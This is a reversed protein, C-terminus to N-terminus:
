VAMDFKIIPGSTYNELVVDEFKVDDIDTPNRNWRITPLPYKQLKIMAEVGEIHNRYIHADGINIHLKDAKLGTLQAVIHTLLSYSAINYPIGLVMDGSRQNLLCSLMGDRVYFQFSYHCPPLVMQKLDEPNWATVILRRSHPDKKITNIVEALQDIGQGTYDTKCDIYTAGFHRWQWGYVPGLDYEERDTLGIKDLYARSSNSNWINVGQQRLISADTQGRIFFLLETWINKWSLKRQTMLPLRNNTLDFTMGINFISKTGVNTRDIAVQGYKLIKNLANVYKQEEGGNFWSSCKNGDIVFVEYGDSLYRLALSKYNQDLLRYCAVQQTETGSIFIEHVNSREQDIVIKHPSASPSWWYSSFDETTDEEIRDNTLTLRKWPLTIKVGGANEGTNLTHSTVNSLIRNRQGFLKGLEELQDQRFKQLKTIEEGLAILKQGLEIREDLCQSKEIQLEKLDLLIKKLTILDEQEEPTLKVYDMNKVQM